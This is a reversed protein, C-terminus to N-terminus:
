VVTKVLYIVLFSITASGIGGLIDSPWHVGCFVRFFTILGTAILFIIALPVSYFVLAFSVAFFLAAHSSPFSPHAPKKILLTTPVQDVPRKRKYFFYIPENVGFRAILGAAAPVLLLEINRNYYSVLILLLLLVYELYDAFFIAVADLFKWRGAFANLRGFIYLDVKAFSVEPM